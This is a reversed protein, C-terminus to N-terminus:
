HSLNLNEFNIEYQFEFVSLLNELIVFISKNHSSTLFLRLLYVNLTLFLKFVYLIGKLLLNKQQSSLGLVIRHFLNEDLTRIFKM